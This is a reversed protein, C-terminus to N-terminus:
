VKKKILKPPGTRGKVGGEKYVKMRRVARVQGLQDKIEDRYGSALAMCEKEMEHVLALTKRNEELVAAIKGPVSAGRWFSDLNESIHERLRTANELIEQRLDMARTSGDVDRGSLATRLRNTASLLEKVLANMRDVMQLTERIAAEDTAKM